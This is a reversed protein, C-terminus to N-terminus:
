ILDLLDDIYKKKRMGVLVHDLGKNLYNDCAQLSIDKDSNSLIKKSILSTKLNLARITIYKKAYLIWYALLENVIKNIESDKFQLQKIFPLLYNNFAKNVAEPNAIQKRNKIFFNIPAFDEPKSTEGFKELQTKILRLFEEFLVDEKDFDVNVFENSYNALRLVKGNYTTNLPRNGFTLIDKRKCFSILSEDKIKKSAENEILNYPFQALKFNPFNNNENIIKQLDIKNKPLENSSIGYYRIVGKKVMKELFSYSENLHEYIYKQNNNQIDFYHEPNHILFGDIYDTKLRKLTAYIQAELFSPEISYLFSDNIKITRPNDLVKAFVNIDNGNVYGAKSIIFANKRQNKSLCEGILEESSGFQYNSATDILNIGNEIAYQLSCIHTQNNKNMRYTGIGLKSINKLDIM